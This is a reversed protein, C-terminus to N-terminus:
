AAAPTITVNYGLAELARIAQSRTRAPNKQAYFDAGLEDYAEGNRLMHWVAVLISHETAVIARMAGRRTSIRRYRAALFTGKSKAAAMAAIGLAGKLYRDGHTTHSSKIKGASENQGPCVGAWSALHAAAPFPTMDAGTEAIIVDAVLISVGPITVLVDRASRFPEILM